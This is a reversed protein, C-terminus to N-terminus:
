RVGKKPQALLREVEETGLVSILHEYEKAVGLIFRADDKGVRPYLYAESFTPADPREVLDDKMEQICAEDPIWRESKVHM